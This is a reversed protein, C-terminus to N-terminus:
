ESTSLQAELADLESGRGGHLLGGASQLLQRAQEIARQAEAKRGQGILAKILISRYEFKGPYETVMDKVINVTTEVDGLENGYYSALHILVDGRFRATLRPNELASGFLTMMQDPLLACFGTVNCHVLNRFGDVTTPHLPNNRLRFNLHDLVDADVALDRAYAVHILSFLPLHNADDLQIALKFQAEAKDLLAPDPQLGFLLYYARGLEYHARQSQPHHEAELIALSVPDRWQDARLATVVGFLAVLMVAAVKTLRQRQATQYPKLLYYFLAFLPGIGPVYNRHDHIMELPLVTSEISHGIAFWFVAFSLVPARRFSAAAWVLVGLVAVCAALTTSPTFLGISLLTDDHFLGLNANSPLGLMGIYMWLVRPQTLMREALTFDRFVYLDTLWGPNFVLFGLLGLVPVAVTCAFFVRLWRQNQASGQFGFAYCECLLLFPFLLVGNEKSLSALIGCASVVVLMGILESTSREAGVRMRLYTWLGLLTFLAALSNMRQVVYLVSSLNIPHLTWALASAVAITAQTGPRMDPRLGRLLLLLVFFLLVGNVVHISVNVLKYGLPDIGGYYANLAFSLMSLPRKLPGASSGGAARLLSQTDLSELHVAPNQVINLFDDFMFNGPLGPLYVLWGLVVIAAIAPLQKMCM